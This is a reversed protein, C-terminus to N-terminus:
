TPTVGDDSNPLTQLISIQRHGTHVNINERFRGTKRLGYRYEKSGVNPIIKMKMKIKKSYESSEDLLQPERERGERRWM